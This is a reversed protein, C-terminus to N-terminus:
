PDVRNVGFCLSTPLPLVKVLLRGPFFFGFQVQVVAIKYSNFFLEFLMSAVEKFFSRMMDYEYPIM